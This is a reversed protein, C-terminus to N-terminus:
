PAMIVTRGSWTGSPSRLQVLYSGAAHPLHLPTRDHLVTSSQVVRGSADTILLRAGLWSATVELWQEGQAAGLVQPEVDDQESVATNVDIFVTYDETEGAFAPDCAGIPGASALARVRLRRAGPLLGGPVTFNITQLAPGAAAYGIQEGADDWDGDGNYDIYAAVETQGPAGVEASLSYATGMILTTSEDTRDHYEMAYRGQPSVANLTNLAISALHDDYVTWYDNVPICPGDADVVMVRIDVLEGDGEVDGSCDEPVIVGSAHSRVRLWHQGPACDAPVVLILKFTQDPVSSSATLLWDSAEFLGDDDMDLLVDAVSGAERFGMSLAYSSGRVLTPGPLHRVDAYPWAEPGNAYTTGAFDVFSLTRGTNGPTVNQVPLCPVPAESFTLTLDRTEGYFADSCPTLGAGDAIRVRLRYHGPFRYPDPVSFTFTVQQFPATTEQEGLAEGPGDYSGDNDWDIWAAIADFEYEGSTIQLVHSGSITLATGRHLADTYAHVPAASTLDLDGITIASIYDGDSMGYPVLPICDLPGAIRIAYDETEGYLYQICPDPPIEGYACRVRLRVYGPRADGPVFVDMTLVEGVATNNVAGIFEEPEFAGDQDIDLWAMYRDNVYNGATITLTYASGPELTAMLNPGLYSYDHYDVGNVLGTSADLDVLQVRQIFDGEDPGTPGPEPICYTQAQLISAALLGFFSILHRM